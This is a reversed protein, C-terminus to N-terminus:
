KELGNRTEQTEKFILRCGSFYLSFFLPPLDYGNKLPAFIKSKANVLKQANKRNSIKSQFTLKKIFNIDM